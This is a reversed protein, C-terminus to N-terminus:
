AKSLFFFVIIGAVLVITLSAIAMMQPTMRQWNLISNYNMLESKAAAKTTSDVPSITIEETSWNVIKKAQVLEGINYQLFYATNGVMYRPDPLKKIDIVHWPMPGYKIRFIQGVKKSGIYGAKGKLIKSSPANTEWDDQRMLHIEGAYRMVMRNRVMLIAVVFIGFLLLGWIFTGLLSTVQGGSPIVDSIQVM